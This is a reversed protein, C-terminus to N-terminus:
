HASIFKICTEVQGNAQYHYSSFITLQINLYRCFERFKQSVFNSGADSKIKKPLRYEFFNDQMEIIFSVALISDPSKIVPFKSYYILNCLYHKNTMSSM